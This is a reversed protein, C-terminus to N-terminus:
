LLPRHGVRLSNDCDHSQNFRLKINIKVTGEEHEVIWSLVELPGRRSPSLTDEGYHHYLTDIQVEAAHSVRMGSSRYVCQDSGEELGGTLFLPYSRESHSRESPEGAM